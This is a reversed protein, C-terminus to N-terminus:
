CYCSIGFLVRNYHKRQVYRLIMTSIPSHHNHSMTYTNCIIRRWSVRARHEHRGTEHPPQCPQLGLLKQSGMAVVVCCNAGAECKVHRVFILRSVLVTFQM